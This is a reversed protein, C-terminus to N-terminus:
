LGGNIRRELSALFGGTSHDPADGAPPAAGGGAGPTARTYAALAAELEAIKKAHANVREVYHPLLQGAAAIYVQEHSSLGAISKSSKAKIDALQPTDKINPLKSELAAWVEKEASALEKIMNEKAQAAEYARRQEVEAWAAQANTQLQERKAIIANFDDVLQFLTFQDRQNMSTAIESVLDNQASINPEALADAIKNRDIKYKLALHDAADRIKSAPETVVSAYEPSTELRVAALETEYLKTKEQLSPLATASSEAFSLKDQVEKLQNQLRLVEQRAEERQSKILEFDRAKPSVVKADPEAPTPETPAPKPEPAASEVKAAPPEPNGAPAFAKDIASFFDM